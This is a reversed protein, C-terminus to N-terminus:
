HFLVDIIERAYAYGMARCKYGLKRGIDCFAVGNEAINKLMAKVPIQRSPSQLHAM